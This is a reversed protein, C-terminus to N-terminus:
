TSLEDEVMLLLLKGICTPFAYKWFGNDCENSTHGKIKYGSHCEYHCIQGHPPNANGRCISPYIQGNDLEELAGCERVSVVFM